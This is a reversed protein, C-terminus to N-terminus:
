HITIRHGNFYESGNVIVNGQTDIFSYVGTGTFSNGDDSLTLIQTITGTAFLSGDPNVVISQFTMEYKSGALPRWAGLGPSIFLGPAGSLEGGDTDVLTGDSHFNILAPLTFQGNPDVFNASWAGTLTASQASAATPAFAILAAAFLVLLLLHHHRRTKM